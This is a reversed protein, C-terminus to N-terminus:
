EEKKARDVVYYINELKYIVVKKIIEWNTQKLLGEFEEFSLSNRDMVVRTDLNLRYTIVLKDGYRKINELFQKPEKIYEIIGQAVVVDFKKLTPYEKNLDCVVTKDTWAELDISTYDKTLIFNYLNGIGGGIDLLSYNYYYLKLELILEGIMKARRDWTIKWPYKKILEENRIM